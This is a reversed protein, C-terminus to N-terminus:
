ETGEMASATTTTVNKKVSDPLCAARLLGAVINLIGCGVMAGSVAPSLGFCPTALIGLVIMTLGVVNDIEWGICYMQKPEQYKAIQDHCTAVCLSAITSFM